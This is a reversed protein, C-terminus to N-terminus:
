INIIGRDTQHSKKSKIKHNFNKIISYFKYKKNSLDIILWQDNLNDHILQYNNFENKM